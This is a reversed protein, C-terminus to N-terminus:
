SIRHPSCNAKTQVVDYNGPLTANYTLGSGIVTNNRRWQYTASSDVNYVSLLIPSSCLITDPSGIQVFCYPTTDPNAILQLAAYANILGHGTENNWIGNPQNPDPAPAYNYLPLKTCSLELIRTAQSVTLTSDFSLMLAMVGAAAPCAVSTGYYSDFYDGGAGSNTNGGNAGQM